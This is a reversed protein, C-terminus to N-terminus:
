VTRLTHCLVGGSKTHRPIVVPLFLNDYLAMNKIIAVMIFLQVILCYMQEEIATKCKTETLSHRTSQTPM